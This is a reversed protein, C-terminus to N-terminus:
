GQLPLDHYNVERIGPTPGSGFDGARRNTQLGSVEVRGIHYRFPQGGVIVDLAACAVLDCDNPWTRDETRVEQEPEKGPPLAALRSDRPEQKGDGDDERRPAHAQEAQVAIPIVGIPLVPHGHPHRHEQHRGQLPSDHQHDAQDQQPIPGGRSIIDRHAAASGVDLPGM